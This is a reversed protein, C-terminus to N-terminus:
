PEPEERVRAAGDGVGVAVEDDVAVELGGIQEDSGVALETEDVEADRLEDRSVAVRVAQRAGAGSRERGIVGRGFLRAAPRDRGGAVDILETDQEVLQEGTSAGPLEASQPRVLDRASEFRLMDRRRGGDSWRLDAAAH